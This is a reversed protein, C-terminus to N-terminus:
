TKDHTQPRPGGGGGGGGGVLLVYKNCAHIKPFSKRQDIFKSAM